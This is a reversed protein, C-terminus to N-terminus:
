RPAPATAPHLAVEHAKVTAAIPVGPTLDLDAVAAATVDASVTIEDPGDPPDLAVRVRVSGARDVLDLVRGPLVNRPSGVTEGRYLAVAAPPFVAVAAEGAPVDGRGTLVRGGDLRLVGPAEIRGQLLNVGAIRAAFSSRPAAFVDRTPGREVVRGAQLVAVDDALAVADLLDHTVLIATRGAERLVRRLLRRLLPAMEVDLAAFPEDLLLLAPDAALARAVAIRQAQGGSLAAPRREALDLADVDALHRRATDHALRRPVGAARPGFAVNELASLHPFLLAQQGLLAIGRDHPPVDIGAATDLLVRDGLRVHGADPHLLGSAIHLTTSKGSGNAGLLALVRGDSLDLDVDLGREAVAGRLSLASM